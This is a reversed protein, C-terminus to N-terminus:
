SGSIAIISPDKIGLSIALQYLEESSSEKIIISLKEINGNEALQQLVAAFRMATMQRENQENQMPM